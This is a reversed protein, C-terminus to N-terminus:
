LDQSEVVGEPKKLASIDELYQQREEIEKVVKGFLESLENDEDEVKNMKKSKFVGQLSEKDRTNRAPVAFMFDKKSLKKNAIMRAEKANIAESIQKNSLKPMQASEPMSGRELLFQM